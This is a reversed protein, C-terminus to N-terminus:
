SFSITIKEPRSVLSPEDQPTLREHHRYVRWMLLAALVLIAVIGFLAALRRAM